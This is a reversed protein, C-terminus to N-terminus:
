RQQVEPTRVASVNVNVAAPFGDEGPRYATRIEIVGTGVRVRDQRVPIYGQELVTNREEAPNAARAAAIAAMRQRASPGVAPVVDLFDQPEPQHKPARRQVSAVKPRPRPSVALSVSAIRRRPQVTKGTTASPTGSILPVAVRLPASSPAPVPRGARGAAYRPLARVFAILLLVAVLGALPRAFGLIPMRVPQPEALRAYFGTQLGSPAAEPRSHRLADLAQRLAQEERRCAACTALHQAIRGREAASVEGDVFAGLTNRVEKCRSIAM